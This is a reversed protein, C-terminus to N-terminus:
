DIHYEVFTKYGKKNLVDSIARCQATNEFGQRGYPPMLAAYGEKDRPCATIGVLACIKQYDVPPNKFQVIDLNSSGGDDGTLANKAAVAAELIDKYFQTQTLLM